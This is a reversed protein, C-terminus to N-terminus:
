QGELLHHLQPQRCVIDARSPGVKMMTKAHHLGALGHGIRVDRQDGSYAARVSTGKCVRILAGAAAVEKMSQWQLETKTCQSYDVIMRVTCGADPSRALAAKCDPCDFSYARVYLSDDRSGSGLLSQVATLYPQDALSRIRIEAGEGSSQPRRETSSRPGRAPAGSPPQSPAPARAPDPRSASATGSSSCIERSKRVLGAICSPSPATGADLVARGRDKASLNRRLAPGSDESM